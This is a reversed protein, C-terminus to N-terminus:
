KEPKRQPKQSSITGKTQSSVAGGSLVVDAVKRAKTPPRKSEIWENLERVNRTM